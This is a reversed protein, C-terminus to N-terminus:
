RRVGPKGRLDRTEEVPQVVLEPDDQGVGLQEFALEGVLHMSGPRRLDDGTGEFRDADDLVEFSRNLRM